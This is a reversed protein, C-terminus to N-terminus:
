ECRKHEYADTAPAPTPESYVGTTAAPTPGPTDGVPTQQAKTQADAYYESDMYQQTTATTPVYDNKIEEVVDVDAFEVAEPKFEDTKCAVVVDGSEIEDIKKGCIPRSSALHFNQVFDESFDEIGHVKNYAECEAYHMQQVVLDMNGDFRDYLGDYMTQTWEWYDGSNADSPPAYTSGDTANDVVYIGSHTPVDTQNYYGYGVDDPSEVYVGDDSSSSGAYSERFSSSSSGSGLEATEPVTTSPATSSSASTPPNANFAPCIESNSLLQQTVIEPLEYSYSYDGLQTVDGYNWMESGVHSFYKGLTPHEVVDITQGNVIVNQVIKANPGVGSVGDCSDTAKTFAKSASLLQEETLPVGFNCLHYVHLYMDIAAHWSYFFPDRPSAFTAMTGGVANHVENHVGFQVGMLFTAYDASSSVISLFSAFGAGSPVPKTAMDSRVSYGCVNNDDCEHNLPYGAVPYGTSTKGNLLLSVGRNQAKNGGIEQLISSCEYFSGCEGAAQRVYATQVDYYPMAVCAFKPDQDRLYSELAILLRRHWTFFGCSRHAQSEGNPEVHIAAFEKIAGNSIATDMAELYLDKESSSMSSWAKRVRGHGCAENGGAQAEARTAPLSTSVLTAALLLTFSRLIAGVRM